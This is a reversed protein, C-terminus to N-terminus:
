IEPLELLMKGHGTTRIKKKDADFEIFEYESLFDLVKILKEHTIHDTHRAIEEVTAWDGSRVYELVEGSLKLLATM